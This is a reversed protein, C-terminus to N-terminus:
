WESSQEQQKLPLPLAAHPIIPFQVLTLLTLSPGFSELGGVGEGRGRAIREELRESVEFDDDDM